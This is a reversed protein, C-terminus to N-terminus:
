FHSVWFYYHRSNELNDLYGSKQEVNPDCLGKPTRIRVSHDPFHKHGLVSFDSQTNPILLNAPSTFPIQQPLANVLLPLIAALHLWM